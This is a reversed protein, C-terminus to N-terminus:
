PTSRRLSIWSALATIAVLIAVLGTAGLPGIGQFLEFVTSWLNWRTIVFLIAVLVLSLTVVAITLAFAGGRRYLTAMWFGVFFLLLTFVLYLLGAVLGGQTWLWPLHAIYGNIGYGNTVQEVYGLAVVILSLAGAALVAALATGLFFERRTATLAQAFPFTLSMAQAGAGVFYWLPAQVAGGYMPQDSGIMAYIAISVLVAATLIIAPIWVFTYRNIFQVRVIGWIRSTASPTDVTSRTVSASQVATSM